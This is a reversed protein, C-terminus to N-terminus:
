RQRDQPQALLQMIRHSIGHLDHASQSQPYRMFVPIGQAMSEALQEDEHISEEFFHAPWAQSMQALAQKQSHRRVDYRGALIRQACQAPMLPTVDELLLELQQQAYAQARTCVILAQAHPMLAPAYAMLHPGVDVVCMHTSRGLWQGLMHLAYANPLTPLMGFPLLQLQDPAQLLASSWDSSATALKAWGQSPIEALGLSLALGHNPCADVALCSHGAKQLLHACHAAATSCGSGGTASAFIILPM